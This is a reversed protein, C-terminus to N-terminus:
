ILNLFDLVDSANDVSYKGIKVRRLETLYSISGLSKAFDFALSRIYTGKSCCVSFKVFPMKIELIEFNFIEIERTKKLIEEEINIRQNYNRDRIHDCFRKGNLKLASYIPPTQRLKGIFKKAQNIISNEDIHDFNIKERIPTEPDLSDTMKGFEMVAHYTKPLNQFNSIQKTLKGTLVILLGTAFPDLTGAHGIKIKKLDPNLNKLFFKIKNVVDFSTWNEKKDILIIEGSSFDFDKKM